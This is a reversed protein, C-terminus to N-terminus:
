SIKYEAKVDREFQELKDFHKKLGVIDKYKKKYSNLERLAQIVYKDYLIDDKMLVSVSTYESEDHSVSVFARVPEQIEEQDIKVTILNGLMVRAQQKRWEHSAKEDNWEFIVHLPSEVEKSEEVIAEPTLSRERSIREVEEGAIQADVKYRITKWQYVMSKEKRPEKSAM